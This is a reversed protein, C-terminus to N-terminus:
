SSPSDVNVFTAGGFVKYTGASDFALKLLGSGTFGNEDSVTIQANNGSRLTAMMTGDLAIAGQTISATGINFVTGSAINLTGSGNIGGNLTADGNFNVTGDNYIDNVVGNARNGSFTARGNFTITDNNYLAGGMGGAPLVCMQWGFAYCFMGFTM